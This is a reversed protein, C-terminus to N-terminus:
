GSCPSCCPSPCSSRRTPRPLCPRQHSVASVAGAVLHRVASLDFRFTRAALALLVIHIVLALLGCLIFLPAAAMGAFNSQSGLVAVLIALLASALPGPGSNERAAHACRDLRRADRDAGDVIDDDADDLGAVIDRPACRRTRRGARHRAVLSHRWADAPTRRRNSLEPYPRSDARTWRNFRPAFAGTSFLVCCGCRIASRMRSCCQRCRAQGLPRDVQKVAVLNASGGTWTASLAALM